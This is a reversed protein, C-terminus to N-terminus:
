RKSKENQPREADFFVNEWTRILAHVQERIETPGIHRTNAAAELQAHLLELAEHFATRRLKQRSLHYATSRNLSFLVTRNIVNCETQAIVGDERNIWGFLVWWDLLGFRRVWYLIDKQFVAFDKDRLPYRKQGSM